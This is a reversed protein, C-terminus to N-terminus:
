FRGGVVVGGPSPTVTLAGSSARASSSPSLIVWVLGGAALLGGAVFCVNAATAFSEATSQKSTAGAASPDASASRHESESLLGMVVGAALAAGGTGLTVWPLPSSANSAGPRDAAGHPAQDAPARQKEDDRQRQLDARQDIERQLTACREEIAGRDPPHPEAQLYRRYAQLAEDIRGSGEYARALNYLMVAHPSLDYARVLLAAAEDFRGNRYAEKSREFIALADDGTAGTAGATSAKPSAAPSQALLPPSVLGMGLGTFAAALLPAASRFVM